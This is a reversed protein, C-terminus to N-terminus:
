QTSTLAGGGFIGIAALAGLMPMDGFRITIIARYAAYSPTTWAPKGMVTDGGVKGVFSTEDDDRFWNGIM